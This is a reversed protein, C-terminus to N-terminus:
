FPEVQSLGRFFRRAQALPFIDQEEGLVTQGDLEWETMSWLLLVAAYGQWRLWNRCRGVAHLERGLEDVGELVVRLLRGHEDRKVATRTASVLRSTQGDRLYWGFLLLDPVGVCPDTALSLDSGAFVCFGSRGESAVASAFNGRPNIAPRRVGWSRDRLYLSDVDIREDGLLISGQIRGPQNYHGKGWGDSGAPLEESGARGAAQPERLADFTLDVTCGDAVYDLKFSELPKRCAVTLGNELTFDFMDAGAPLPVTNGWDYYLCDWQNEGSPDWLAVGGVSYNMNPRHFFYVWGTILQEPVTFGFWASENWYPDTSGRHLRDDEPGIV